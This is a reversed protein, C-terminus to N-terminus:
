VAGIGRGIMSVGIVLLLVTMITASKKLLWGRFAELLGALQEPAVLYVVVPVAVSSAAVVTFAGIVVTTEGGPLGASGIVVGAGASMILNKPNVASLLFGLGMGKGVSLSEIAGMWRPPDAQQGARPRGQWQKAAVLFLLVGLLLQITGKVPGSADPDSAPLVASLFTFATVAVVIGTVWGILFGVSTGKARQSLLTLIAAIIPIPSITIAVALPLIDGIVEGM